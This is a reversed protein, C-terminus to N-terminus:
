RLWLLAGGFIRNPFRLKFVFYGVLLWCRRGGLYRLYYSARFDDNFLRWRWCIDMWFTVRSEQFGLFSISKTARTGSSPPVFSLDQKRLGFRRRRQKM